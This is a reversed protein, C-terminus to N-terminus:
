LDPGHLFQILTRLGFEGAYRRLQFSLPRMILRGKAGRKPRSKIASGFEDFTNIGL